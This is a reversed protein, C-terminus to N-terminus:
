RMTIRYTFINTLHPFYPDLNLDELSINVCIYVNLNYYFLIEITYLFLFFFSKLFHVYLEFTFLLKNNRIHVYAVGYFLKCKKNPSKSKPKSYCNMKVRPIGLLKQFTINWEKFVSCHFHIKMKTTDIRWKKHIKM